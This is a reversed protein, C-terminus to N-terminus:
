PGIYNHSAQMARVLMEVKIMARELLPYLEEHLDPETPLHVVKLARSLVYKAIRHWDVPIDAGLEEQCLAELRAAYAQAHM